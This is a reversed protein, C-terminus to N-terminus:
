GSRRGGRYRPWSRSFPFSLRLLSIASGLAIFAIGAVTSAALSEGLFLLALLPALAPKVFFVLSATAPSSREIATFYAAYGLGTVCLSIYAFMPASGLDLGRFVPISAFAGLGAGLLAGTLSPLRSALILGLLEASGLIFSFATTALGGLRLSRERGLVAYLAFLAASALSLGLGLPSASPSFPNVILFMGVLSAALSLATYLRIREKLLIAALPIVLVPNCSFLIAVISAKSFQIALQYCTMSAVVCLGGSLAFFGWDRPMPRAGRRRLSRLTFPLLFLGGLAFRLFNLQLPNFRAAVTKLAIEMSSFLLTSLAIPASASFGRTEGRGANSDM